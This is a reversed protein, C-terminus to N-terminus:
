GAIQGSLRKLEERLQERGSDTKWDIKDCRKRIADLEPDAIPFTLFDDWDYAEGSNGLFNEIAKAVDQKDLKRPHRRTWWNALRFFAIAVLAILAIVGAINM